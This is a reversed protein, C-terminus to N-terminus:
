ETKDNHIFKRIKLILNAVVVKEEKNLSIFYFLVINCLICCGFVTFLLYWGDFINSLLIGILLVIFATTVLPLFTERFNLIMKLNKVFSSNNECAPTVKRNM